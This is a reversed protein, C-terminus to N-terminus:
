KWVIYAITLYKLFKECATYNLGYLMWRCCSSDWSWAGGIGAWLCMSSILEAAMSAMLLDAPTASSTFRLSHIVCIGRGLLVLAEWEPKSVWLTVLLGVCPYWCGWLFIFFLSKVYIINCSNRSNDVLCQLLLRNQDTTRWVTVSICINRIWNGCGLTVTVKTNSEELNRRIEHFTKLNVCRLVQKVPFCEPSCSLQM